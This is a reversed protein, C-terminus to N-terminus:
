PTQRPDLAINRVLVWLGAFSLVGVAVYWGLVHQLETYALDGPSGAAQSALYLSAAFLLRGCFSRLSVYTARMEDNLLPQTRALIFPQSLSNPVMRLLLLAIAAPANTLALVGVLAIQMAYALLLIGGLGLRRRLGQAVLSTLVSLLMMAASIAGSVLPANAELGVGKLAELIFPQGFVFPVHSFGYMLVSLLFLWILIPEVLAPRLAALRAWESRHGRSQDARATDTFGISLALAVLATVMSLVFPLTQDFYALGGGAVASLALSTFSYRWAKLEQAEIENERENAALSEYLLASDTGSNFATSAGLCVQALAFMLFGDGFSLLATGIVTALSALILTIRRGIRDSLYGSPVELVTTGIDYIAYLLIAEAPSLQSQFFLFWVAQWFVLNRAFQFWPYLAINRAASTARETSSVSM